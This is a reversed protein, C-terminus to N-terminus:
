RANGLKRKLWNSLRNKLNDNKAEPSLIEENQQEKNTPITCDSLIVYYSQKLKEIDLSEPLNVRYFHIKELTQPFKIEQVNTMDCNQFTVTDSKGIGSLDLVSPFKMKGNFNLWHVEKPYIVDFGSMDTDFWYLAWTYAPNLKLKAPMKCNDFVTLTVFTSQSLDLATESLDCREMKLSTMDKPFKLKCVHRYDGNKDEFEKDKIKVELGTINYTRRLTEAKEAINEPQNRNATIGFLVRKYDNATEPHAALHRELIDVFDAINKRNNTSQLFALAFEPTFETKGKKVATLMNHCRLPNQPTTIKIELAKM